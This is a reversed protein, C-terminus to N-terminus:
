AVARAGVSTVRAKSGTKVVVVVDVEEKRLRRGPEAVGVACRCCSGVHSCVLDTVNDESGFVLYECGGSSSHIDVSMVVLLERGEAQEVKGRFELELGGLGGDELWLRDLKM